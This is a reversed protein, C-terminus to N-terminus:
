QDMLIFLDRSSYNCLNFIELETQHLKLKKEFAKAPVFM